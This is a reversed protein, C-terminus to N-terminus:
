LRVIHSNYSYMKRYFSIHTLLLATEAFYLLLIHFVDLKLQHYCYMFDDVLMHINSALADYESLKHSFLM